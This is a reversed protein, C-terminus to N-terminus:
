EVTVSKALNRPQDVDLGKMAAIHYAFLQLPIVSLVPNIYWSASPIWLIDDALSSIKEDGDSAVVIVKGGRSKAQEVQSIMKEYWNDKPAIALIPMTKDILAIPGHKLEGAPYAEAHIYSTEKLKLAGEYAIPMNVGRGIYLIHQIDKYKDAIKIVDNEKKLCEEVFGPIKCVDEVMVQRIKAPLVGKKEALSIAILLLLTLPATFAKTSAVSIEPGSQMSLYGDAVRMAQSGMVNVISWIKAGKKRAEEIASLTDATEGSQSIALAIHKKGILPNRYRFESAIDVDVPIGSISEILYKGVHGAHAATGCAIIKIGDINKMSFDNKILTPLQVSWKNFDIRGALTESLTRAQEFIEKQMFHRHNGKAASIPDWDVREMKLTIKEGSISSVEVGNRSIIAMQNPELFFVKKTYDLLAPIDSAIYNEGDGIGIVIGGAHGIRAAYIKEPEIPSILAIGHAGKIKELTKRVSNELSQGDELYKEILHVICETDTESTFRVGSNMLGNKIDLYNEVIGNHTLAVQNRYGIHPHSNKQCPEGHTAWRTHGIGIKGKVPENQILKELNLLKGSHRRIKIVAQDLIAIGASDYGRYELKKLGNLIIKTADSQGIYGVIGCM